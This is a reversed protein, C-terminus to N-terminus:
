TPNALLVELTKDRYKDRDKKEGKLGVRGMCNSYRVFISERLPSKIIAIREFNDLKTSEICSTLSYDVFWYGELNPIKGLWHYHTFRNNIILDLDTKVLKKHEEVFEKGKTSNIKKKVEDIPLGSSKSINSLVIMDYPLIACFNLYNIDWNIDCIPTILVARFEKKESDFYIKDFLNSQDLDDNNDEQIIYEEFM